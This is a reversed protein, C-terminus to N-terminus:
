RVEELARNAASPTVRPASYAAGYHANPPQGSIQRIVHDFRGILKAKRSARVMNRYTGVVAGTHKNVVQYATQGDISHKM